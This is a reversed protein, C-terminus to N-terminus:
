ERSDPRSLMMKGNGIEVRIKGPMEVSSQSGRRAALDALQQWKEFSMSQQPWGQEQWIIKFMQRVMVDNEIALPGLEIEVQNPSRHVCPTALDRAKLDLFAEIEVAQQSLRILSTPFQQGFRSQIIPILENRILNRSYDTTNNSSDIRFPQDLGKLFAEIENRRTSLLPRIVSVSPDLHTVVPIGALGAIGTGRFLRFLITELHDDANHGTAIIRAGTQHALELLFQYRVKRLEEEGRNKITASRHVVFQLDLNSALEAVFAEDQDSESSRLGHNIHAVVLPNSSPSPGIHRRLHEIIRLLAVSDPGGSVAAIITSKAWADIPLHQNIQDVM